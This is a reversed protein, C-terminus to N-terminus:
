GYLREVTASVQQSAVKAGVYVGRNIRCDWFDRGHSVKVHDPGVPRDGTPDLGYWFGDSLVETWAHSEGEGTVYGVVYRAPIGMRRLVAVTAQAFDQCVGGGRELAQEATTTVDTVGSRYEMRSHIRHMVGVAKSLDDCACEPSSRVFADVAPGPATQRSPQRFIMGDNPGAREEPVPWDPVRGPVDVVGESYVSFLTHTRMVAGEVTRNGFADHYETVPVDPLISVKSSVVRQRITDRPVCRLTFSHRSAEGGFAM